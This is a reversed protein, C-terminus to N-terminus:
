KRAEAHHRELWQVGKSINDFVDGQWGHGEEYTVLEVKAGGKELDKKAQEAFQFKCTKDQPSHYLFYAHGKAKDLPPLQSPKFVSMAVFSGTVRESSLSIAYAAPGGSSWSLTFIHESNLKHKQTIDQIVADVFDETSFKMGTARNKTTPWVIQQKETWKVAVPQAILYNEPVAYKYIRKVFPHFDASGDGGPLVIILGYGADPKNTSKEPGILFYRMDENNGARLEQSSVDAVDDEQPWLLPAVAAVITAIGLFLRLPKNM